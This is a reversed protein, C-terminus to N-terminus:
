YGSTFAFCQPVLRLWRWKKHTRISKCQDTCTISHVHAHSTYIYYPQSPTLATLYWAIWKTTPNRANVMANRPKKPVPVVMSEKWAKPVVGTRWCANFLAGWLNRLIDRDVMEATLGDKGPAAKRKIKGMAAAVEEDTIENDLQENRIDDDVVTERQGGVDGAGENLLQEFHAKWVKRAGDGERIKGEGDIVRSM